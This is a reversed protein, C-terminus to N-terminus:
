KAKGYVYKPVGGAILLGETIPVIKIGTLHTKIDSLIGIPIFSYLQNLM